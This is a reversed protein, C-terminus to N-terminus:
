WARVIRYHRCVGRRQVRLEKLFRAESDCKDLSEKVIVLSLVGIREWREWKKGSAGPIRRLTIFKATGHGLNEESPYRSAFMLVSIVEGSIHKATWEEETMEVSLGIYSLRGAIRYRKDDWGVGEGTEVPARGSRGVLQQWMFTLGRSRDADSLVRRFYKLVWPNQLLIVDPKEVDLEKGSVCDRLKISKTPPRHDEGFQARSCLHVDAAWLPWAEEQGRQILDAALEAHEFSPPARWAVAGGEGADWGAWSWSPFCSRRRCPESVFTSMRGSGLHDWASVALGFTIQAGPRSGAVQGMWLPLGYLLYFDAIRTYANTIGLFANLSDADQTLRRKSYDRIHRDIGRFQSRVDIEVPQACGYDVRCPGDLRDDAEREGFTGGNYLIGKFIGGVMFDGMTMLWSEEGGGHAPQLFLPIAVSEQTALGDCEWYVQNETFVLRRNSLVGEQYTWGRTWHTSEIIDKRLDRLSAVLTSGSDLACRPQSTRPTSGVGPLGHGDGSGAAAFITVDACEYV